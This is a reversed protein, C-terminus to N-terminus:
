YTRNFTKVHKNFKSFLVWSPLRYDREMKDVAFSLVRSEDLFLKKRTTKGM